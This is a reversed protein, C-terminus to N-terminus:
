TFLSFSFLEMKTEPHFKAFRSEGFGAKLPSRRDSCGRWSPAPWGECRFRTQRTSEPEETPWSLNRRFARSASITASLRPLPQVSPEPTSAPLIAPEATRDARIERLDSETWRLFRIDAATRDDDPESAALPSAAQHFVTLWNLRLSFFNKLV